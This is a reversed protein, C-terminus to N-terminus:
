VDKCLKCFYNWAILAFKTLSLSVVVLPYIPVLDEEKAEDQGDDAQAAGGADKPGGDEERDGM